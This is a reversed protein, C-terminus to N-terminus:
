MCLENTTKHLLENIKQNCEREQNRCHVMNAADGLETAISEAMQYYNAAQCFYGSACQPRTGKALLSNAQAMFKNAKAIYENYDKKLSNM